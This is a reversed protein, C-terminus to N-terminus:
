LRDQRFIGDVDFLATRLQLRKNQPRGTGFAIQLHIRIVREGSEKGTEQDPNLASASTRLPTMAFLAGEAL